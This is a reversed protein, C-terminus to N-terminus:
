QLNKTGVLKLNAFERYLQEIDLQMKDGWNKILLVVGM